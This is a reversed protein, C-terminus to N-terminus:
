HLLHSAILDFLFQCFAPNNYPQLQKSAVLELLNKQYLLVQEDNQDQNSLVQYNKLWEEITKLIQSSKKREIKEFAQTLFIQIKPYVQNKPIKLWELTLVEPYNKGLTLLIQTKENSIFNQVKLMTNLLTESAKTKQDFFKM